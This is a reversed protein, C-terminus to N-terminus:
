KPPRKTVPRVMIKKVFPRVQKEWSFDLSYHDVILWDPKESGIAMITEHVDQDISVGLWDSYDDKIVNSKDIVKSKFPAKLELIQFGRNLVLHNLNGKHARCIFSISAGIERLKEALTMCRMIHGSGMKSSVDVRFVFRM